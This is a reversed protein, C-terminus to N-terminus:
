RAISCVARNHVSQFVEFIVECSFLKISRSLTVGVHAIQHLPFVGLNPHFLPPTLLVFLQLGAIDGFCHLIPGLNSHHFPSIPLRMRAKPQCWFWHGQIVKFTVKATNNPWFNQTTNLPYCSQRSMNIIQIHCKTVAPQLASRRMRHLKFINGQLTM